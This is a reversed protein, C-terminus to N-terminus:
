SEQLEQKLMKRIRKRERRGSVQETQPYVPVVDWPDQDVKLRFRRRAAIELDDGGFACTVMIEFDRIRDRLESLDDPLDDNREVTIDLINRFTGLGMFDGRNLPGQSTIGEPREEDDGSKQLIDRDTVTATYESGDTMRLTCYVGQGYIPEQSMNSMLILADLDSGAGRNIIVRPKRARMYSGVFIQLYILWVGLMGVNTLVNLASSYEKLWDM